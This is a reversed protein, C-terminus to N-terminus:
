PADPRAKESDLVERIKRALSTPTIPKQLFAVGAELVGHRVVTDDTYGSMCVVKMAPRAAVLRRALEPGSMHPMVVDTLLLDIAEPHGECLLLAEGGDAAAMVRYGQRRLISQVITRVQDEDEVLLITETGRLTAPAPHPGVVDLEADVRPLYVKFTTGRGPESYVWINGGSQQVVGFVTSLGLGTGKGKEKTTFFPEFIRAQTERDMGTGTDSVAMMVYPGAKAPLHEQAYGEDLVVNETEITLKGGMPMADRANVVLNLIVQEVHSPDARVRGASKATVLVLDVDAGLIRQVMKEMSALVERLDLVKPEAVQQRSFLLLQRTLGAARSAAKRIEEVDARLPDGPMMDGLLVEGYSLIVSLVNNFDHAVGGALRGVAEMKQAQRLQRESECLAEEARRRGVEAQKRETLDAIFAICQPYELMAVGVLIPVRGGDKRFAETEWPPAVGGTRLQELSRDGLLDPWRIAGHLLEDRSYGLMKLYTENADLINGQVDAIAIGIVGSEALRSFRAESTRLAAESQRHGERERWERLVREVAPRLRVLKDKLVFDSAGARMAEVATEEGITGSVIIFPLDLGKEKLIALAAPASFSPMSWDSVVVDWAQTDLAAGMAKATEVREFQVHRGMRLLDRVVLKADTASDEVLLVRLIDSM